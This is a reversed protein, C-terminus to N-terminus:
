KSVESYNMKTILFGNEHDAFGVYLNGTLPSKSLHALPMLAKAIKMFQCFDVEYKDYVAQELDDFDVNDDLKLLFKILEEFDFDNM